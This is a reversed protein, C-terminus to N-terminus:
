AYVFRYFLFYDRCISWYQELTWNPKIGLKELYKLVMYIEPVVKYGEIIPITEYDNNLYHKLELIMIRLMGIGYCTM